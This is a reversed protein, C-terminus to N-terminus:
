ISLVEAVTAASSEWSLRQATRIGAPNTLTGSEQRARHIARLHEVAQELQSSGLHAWRGIKQNGYIQHYREDVAPELTCPRQYTSM